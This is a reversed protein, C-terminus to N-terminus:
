EEKLKYVSWLRLGSNYLRYIWIGLVLVIYTIKIPLITIIFVLGLNILITLFLAALPNTIKYILRNWPFAEIRYYENIMRANINTIICDFIIAFFLIIYVFVYNHWVFNIFLM